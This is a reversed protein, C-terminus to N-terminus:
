MFRMLLMLGMDALCMLCVIVVCPSHWFAKKQGKETEFGGALVSMKQELILKEM